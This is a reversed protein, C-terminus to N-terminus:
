NLKFSSSALKNSVGTGSYVCSIKIETGAPSNKIIELVDESLTNGNGIFTQENGSISVVWKEVNFKVKTLIVTEDYQAILKRIYRNTILDGDSHSGWYIQAPPLDIITVIKVDFTDKTKNDIFYLSSESLSKPYLFYANKVADNKVIEINNSRISFDKIGVNNGIYVENPYQYFLAPTNTSSILGVDQQAFSLFCYFIIFFVTTFKYNM